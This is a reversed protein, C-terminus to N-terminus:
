NRDKNYKQMFKGKAFTFSKLKEHLESHKM